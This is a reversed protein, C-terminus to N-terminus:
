LVAVEVLKLEDGPASFSCSQLAAEIRCAPGRAAAAARRYAASQGFAQLGQQMLEKYQQSGPINGQIGAAFRCKLGGAVEARDWFANHVRSTYLRQLNCVSKLARPLNGRSCSFPNFPNGVCAFCFAVKFYGKQRLGARYAHWAPM